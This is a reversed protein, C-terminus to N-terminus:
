ETESHKETEGLWLWLLLEFAEGKTEPVPLTEPHLHEPFVEPRRHTTMLGTTDHLPGRGYLCM